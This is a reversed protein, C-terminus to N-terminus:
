ENREEELDLDLNLDFQGTSLLVLTCANRTRINNRELENILEHSEAGPNFIVTSPAIRVLEEIDPELLEARVYIVAIDIKEQVQRLHHLTPEITAIKSYPNLPIVRHGAKLLRNLAMSSYRTPNNSAGILLVTSM